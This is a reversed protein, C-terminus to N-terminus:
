DSTADPPDVETMTSGPVFEDGLWRVFETAFRKYTYKSGDALPATEVVKEYVALANRIQTLAEFKGEAHFSWQARDPDIAMTSKIMGAVSSSVSGTLNQCKELEQWARPNTTGDELSATRRHLRGQLPRNQQERFNRLEAPRQHRNRLDREKPSYHPPDATRTTIFRSGSYCQPSTPRKEM